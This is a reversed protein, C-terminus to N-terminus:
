RKMAVINGDVISDNFQQISEMYELLTNRDVFRPAEDYLDSSILNSQEDNKNNSNKGKKKRHHFM